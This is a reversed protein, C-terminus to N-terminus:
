GLGMAAKAEDLKRAAVPRIRDAAEALLREMHSADESLQAYRTQLPRLGEIVLEALEKKVAGYGQGAFHDEIQERTTDPPSFLQYMTLLNFLGPRHADFRVDRGSDTTAKMIRGRIV